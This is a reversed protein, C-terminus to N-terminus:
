NMKHINEDFYFMKHNAINIILLIIDLNYPVLWLYLLASTRKTKYWIGIISAMYLFYLPSMLNHALYYILNLLYRIPTQWDQHVAVINDMYESVIDLIGAVLLVICLTLFLKNSRGKYLGRAFLALILTALAIVACEDYILYTHM